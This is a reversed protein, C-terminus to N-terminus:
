ASLTMRRIRSTAITAISDLTPQAFDCFSLPLFSSASPAIVTEPSTPPGFSTLPTPKTPSKM